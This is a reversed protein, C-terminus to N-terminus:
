GLQIDTIAKQVTDVDIVPLDQAAGIMMSRDCLKNIVRPTGNAANLIAEAANDEFVKQRCGAGELKKTIYAHGEEKSLGGMNYNMVIRQRLPEHMSQDLTANLRPLGILLVVALDRSDMNFNFLMQLDHLIKHSLTDAEDIIVVPTIRKEVALRRIEAQIDNFIENKRYRPEIGLGSAMQRYFDMVTLTSLCNYCKKFLSPSLADAWVRATTTKGNGPGGTLLGIGRTAGLIDLRTSAEHSEASDLTIDKSNKLFPNFELGYRSIYNKM